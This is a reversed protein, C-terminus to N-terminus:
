NVLSKLIYDIGKEAKFGLIKEARLGDVMCLYRLHDVEPPPFSTIRFKWMFKMGLDFLIGPVPIRRKGTKSVLVSLPIETAGTINFVGKVGKKLSLIIAKVVDQEHIVQVLPDYGLVTPILNLRLYNSPANKVSGIIHVPRLIVTEIHPFKWFFSNAYMDVIILDRIDGFREGGLLPADEKLFHTNHPRPGYVNSSSLVVLKPVNYKEVYSFIRETGTVNWSHHEEADMRPDHMIGMHIVATVNYKRFIEECKKRRIDLRFHLIDKPRNPFPRRDLAIINHTRHLEKALVRGLRGCLGTVVVYEKSDHM